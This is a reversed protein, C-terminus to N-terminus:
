HDVAHLGFTNVPLQHGVARGSVAQRGVVKDGIAAAYIGMLMEYNAAPTYHTEYEARAALRMKARLADDCTLRTVAAALEDPAAATFHLGTQEHAVFEAMAGLRSAIVPTGVAFAELLAKPCNEYCISPVLLCSAPAMLQQVEEPSRRGLWKIRHDTCTAQQALDGLPGDGVIKLQPEGPLLKWADLLTALGKEESLRGVFLAYGGEGHGVQPTGPVFNPKVVIKEAPLGGAIFKERAFEALAIYRDVKEVWTGRWRHWAVMGALTATQLRSGRYCGRAIGPWALMKGLCDECAAGDRLMLANPCLLRFNHLSQVVPIGMDHAADYAAPSILAFTNTCHMVDPRTAAILVSLDDYTQRNWLTRKAVDLMSMVAIDDNHRIYHVVRHGYARLLEEEDNFVQDEGGPQQYHNHCLLVKM